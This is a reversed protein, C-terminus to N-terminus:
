NCLELFQYCVGQNSCFICTNINEAKNSSNYSIMQLQNCYPSTGYSIRSVLVTVKHLFLSIGAVVSANKENLFRCCVTLGTKFHLVFTLCVKILFISYASLEM